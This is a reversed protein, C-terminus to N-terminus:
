TAQVQGGQQSLAVCQVSAIGSADTTQQRSLLILSPDADYRVTIGAVPALTAVELTQLILQDSVSGQKVHLSTTIANAFYIPVQARLEQSSVALLLFVVALSWKMHWVPLAFVVPPIESECIPSILGSGNLENATHYFGFHKDQLVPVPVPSLM